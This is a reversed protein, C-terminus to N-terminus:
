YIALCISLYVSLSTPRHVFVFASLCVARLDHLSARAVLELLVQAWAQHGHAIQAPIRRDAAASSIKSTISKGRLHTMRRTRAIIHPLM